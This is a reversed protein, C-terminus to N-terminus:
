REFLGRAAKEAGNGLPPLLLYCWFGPKCLLSLLPSKASTGHADTVMDEEGVYPHPAQGTDTSKAKGLRVACCGRSATMASFKAPLFLEILCADTGQWLFQKWKVLRQPLRQMQGYEQGKFSNM